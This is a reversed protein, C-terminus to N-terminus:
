ATVGCYENRWAIAEKRLRFNRSYRVGRVMWRVRYSGNKERSIHSTTKKNMDTQKIQRRFIVFYALTLYNNLYIEKLYIIITGLKLRIL